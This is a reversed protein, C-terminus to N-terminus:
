DRNVLQAAIWGEAGSKPFSVRYWLYNGRDYGSGLIRVRDGPYAIHRVDYATGPGSRINKSGAQGTISANTGSVAAPPPPPQRVPPQGDIDVLHGAIWGETGSNPFYVKYWPFGNAERGSGQVAVRDGPYATAIVGYGTGPGSRINKSGPQGAIAANTQVTPRSLPPPPAVSTPDPVPASVVPSTATPSPTPVTLSSNPSSTPFPETKISSQSDAILSPLQQRILFAGGLISIGIISGLILAKQWEKSSVADHSSPAYSLLQTPDGGVSGEQGSGPNTSPNLSPTLQAASYVTKALPPLEAITKPILDLRPSNPLSLLAAKMEQATSFRDSPQFCIARNLIAVFEPNVTPVLKGWLIAGTQPDTDLEQPTKGSLLYIATMGLSYLDSAYLPRGALQETPMYGATGVVISRSSNGQSNIVTSMSEKVAGFDILVPKKDRFRLIINEPKIDRHVIQKQHIFDIVPLLQILIDRVAAESLPGEKLLKQSLTDGEVWEEVLYFQEAEGFYAYLRPIQDHSDGLEELLAAERQFRERVLKHIQPDNERVPKLQKVVVKRSSPMQTDEALFTKGFGGDGLICIVQYRHNLLTPMPSNAPENVM